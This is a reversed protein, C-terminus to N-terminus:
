KLQCFISNNTYQVSKFWTATPIVNNFNILNPGKFIEYILVLASVTGGAHNGVQLWTFISLHFLWEDMVLDETLSFMWKSHLFLSLYDYSINELLTFNLCISTHPSQSWTLIRHIIGWAQGCAIVLVKASLSWPFSNEGCWFLFVALASCGGYRVWVGERTLIKGM